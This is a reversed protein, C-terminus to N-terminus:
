TVLGVGQRSCFHYRIHDIFVEPTYVNKKTKTSYGLQKMVTDMIDAVIQTHELSMVESEKKGESLCQRVAEAEYRMGTSNLYKTSTHDLALSVGDCVPDLLITSDRFLPRHQSWDNQRLFNDKLPIKPRSILLSSTM